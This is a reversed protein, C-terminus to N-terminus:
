FAARWATAYCAALSGDDIVRKLAPAMYPRPPLYSNYAGTHGGLEQIRGYIATPGVSIEWGTAGKPTASTVRISRRLTGTVLAPPQGPPSAFHQNKVFRGRSDRGGSNSTRHSETLVQKVQAELLHGGSTVAQRSAASAGAVLGDLARQFEAVGTMIITV